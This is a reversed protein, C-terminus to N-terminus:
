RRPRAPAAPVPVPAAQRLAACRMIWPKAGSRRLAPWAQAAAAQAGAQDRGALLLEARVQQAQAARLVLGSRAAEREASRALTLAEGPEGPLQALILLGDLSGHVNHQEAALLRAQEVARRARGHSGAAALAAALRLKVSIILWRDGHEVARTLAAESLESGAQARGTAILLSAMAERAIIGGPVSGFDDALRLAQRATTEAGQYHGLECQISALESLSDVQGDTSGLARYGALARSVTRFAVYLVGMDRHLTGLTLLANAVTLPRNHRRALRIATRTHALAGTLQGTQRCLTGLNTHNSAQAAERGLQGNLALAEELLSRARDLDNAAWTTVALANLVPPFAGPRGSARAAAVAAENIARWEPMSRRIWFYHTLRRSIQWAPPRPGHAAAHQVVTVINPLESDLWAMAAAADPLVPRPLDAALQGARLFSPDATAVSAAHVVTQVYFSMLRALAVDDGAAGDEGAAGDSGAGGGAASDGAPSDQEAAFSRVLDHLQYRSFGTQEILHVDAIRELLWRSHAPDVGLMAAASDPTVFRVPMRGAARFLRRAPGPLSQYSLGLASRASVEPDTGSQLYDLVRSGRMASAVAAPDEGLRVNAASVRLFLPVHACLCALDTLAARNHRHGPALQAMLEVADAPDLPALELAAADGLTTLASLRSRSTILAVTHPGTPLAPRVQGADAVDDFIILLRHEATLRRYFPQLAEPEAPIRSSPVGLAHLVRTMAEAATAPTSAAFGRMDVYVQGDPFAGAHQRAWRVALATKGLGAGGAVVVTRPGPQGAAPGEVLRDLQAFERERGAFPVAAPPLQAGHVPGPLAVGPAADERLIEDYLHRLRPGPELGFEDVMARRAQHYAAIAEAKRGSIRYADMLVAVLRERVPPGSARPEALWIAKEPRGLALEAEAGLEVATLQLNEADHGLRVRLGPSAVDGLLPGRCLELSGGLLALRRAPDPEAAALGIGTRLRHLDVDQPDIDIQYGGATGTVPVGFPALRARLRSLYTQIAARARAPPAGDWLLDALREAPVLRNCDLLLLGFLCREQRRGLSIWEAGSRAGVKGLLFFEM